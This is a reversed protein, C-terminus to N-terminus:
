FAGGNRGKPFTSRFAFKDEFSFRHHTDAPPKKSKRSQGKEDTYRQCLRGLWFRMPLGPISTGVMGVLKFGPTLTGVMGVLKFGPILIGVMGALKFGPILIGVM